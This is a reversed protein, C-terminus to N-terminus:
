TKPGLALRAALRTDFAFPRWFQITIQQYDPHEPNLLLNPEEPVHASPVLLAATQRQAVWSDGLAQLPSPRTLGLRLPRMDIWGDPLDDVGVKDVSVHQPIEIRFLYQM